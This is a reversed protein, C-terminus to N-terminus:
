GNSFTGGTLSLVAQFIIWAGVGCLLSGAIQDVRKAGNDSEDSMTRLRLLSGIVAYVLLGIAGVCCIVAAVVGTPEDPRSAFVTLVVGPYKPNLCQLTVGSLFSPTPQDVNRDKRVIMKSGLFMVFLGGMVQIGLMAWPGLLNLAQSAFGILTAVLCYILLIGVHFPVLERFRYRTGLAFSVLNAPGPSLMLPLVVFITEIM